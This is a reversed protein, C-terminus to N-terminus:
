PNVTLRLRDSVAIGGDKDTVRIYPRYTGAARYAHQATPIAGQANVVGDTFTGDGWVIRYKWPSDATGRDTFSGQITFSGGRRFTTPSGAAVMVVPAANQVVVSRTYTTSDADKDRLRVAVPVTDNDTWAPCTTNPATTPTGFTGMGCNFSVQIGARLDAAGDVLASISLPFPTGETVNVPVGFVARPAVNVVTITDRVTDRAGSPDSVIVELPYSGNDGYRRIVTSNGTTAPDNHTGGNGFTWAYRLADGEPDQGIATLTISDTEELSRLGPALSVTPASNFESLRWRVLHGNGISDLADGAVVGNRNIAYASRGGGLGELQRMGSRPTWAWARYGESTVALGVVMGSQSISMAVAGIGGGTGIDIFGTQASWFFARQQQSADHWSGVIEGRLNVDQAMSRPGPVPLLEIQGAATWRVAREPSGATNGTSFGVAVGSDNVAYATAMIGLSPLERAGDQATWVFARSWDGTFRERKGVVMGYRNIDYARSPITLEPQLDQPVASSSSWLVARPTGDSAESTGVIQGADSIAHAITQPSSSYALSQLTDRGATPTWVIAANGGDVPVYGVVAGSANIGLLQGGPGLDEVPGLITSALPPADGAAVPASISDACAASMASVVAIAAARRLSQISM